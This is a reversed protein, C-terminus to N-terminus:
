RLYLSFVRKRSYRARKLTTGALKTIGAAEQFRDGQFTGALPVFVSRITTDLSGQARPMRRNKCCQALMDESEASKERSSTRASLM